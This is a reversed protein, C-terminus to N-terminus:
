ETRPAEQLQSELRQLTRPSIQQTSALARIAAAPVCNATQTVEYQITNFNARVGTQVGAEDGETDGVFEFRSVPGNGVSFVDRGHNSDTYSFCSTLPPCGGQQGVRLQTIRWGPEALIIEETISGEATTFDSETEVARMFLTASISSGNNRLQVSANVAPGSGDFDRDGRTHRPIFELSNPRQARLETRCVPTAPQIVSITSIVRNNWKLLLRQSDSTLPLGNPGGLTLTLHYHTPRNLAQTVDLQTGNSQEVLVTIPLTDFDYGFLELRNLRDPVLARDVALPVVQCLQPEVPDVPQKLHMAKIRILGQRMRNVLFDSNCRLEAGTTAVGRQLLTSVENRLTSQTSETLQNATNQLVRQWDASANNLSAIADDLILTTRDIRPEVRDLVSALPCAGLLPALLVLVLARRSTRPNM